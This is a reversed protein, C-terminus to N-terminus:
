ATQENEHGVGKTKLYSKPSTEPPARAEAGRAPVAVITKVPGNAALKHPHRLRNSTKMGLM